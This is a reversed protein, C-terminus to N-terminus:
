PSRGKAQRSELNGGSARVPVAGMKDLVGTLGLGYAARKGRQSSTGVPGATREIRHVDLVIRSEPEAPSSM